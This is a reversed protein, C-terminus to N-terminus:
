WTVLREFGTVDGLYFYSYVPRIEEANELEIERLEYLGSDVEEIADLLKRCEPDVRYVEGTICDGQQSSADVLGPYSGLSYMFYKSRTKAKVLFAQGALASERQHGRKLTGYVFINQM